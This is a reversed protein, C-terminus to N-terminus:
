PGYDCMGCRLKVKNTSPSRSRFIPFLEKLNNNVLEEAYQDKEPKCYRTNEVVMNHCLKLHKMFSTVSSSERGCEFCIYETMQALDLKIIADPKQHYLKQHQRLLRINNFQRNCTFCFKPNPDARKKPGSVRRGLEDLYPYEELPFKIEDKFAHGEVILNHVIKLHKRFSRKHKLRIGCEPCDFNELTDLNCEVVGSEIVHYFLIHEKVSYLLNFTKNCYPCVQPGMNPDEEESSDYTPQEEHPIPLSAVTQKYQERTKKTKVIKIEFVYECDSDSSYYTEEGALNNILDSIKLGPHKRAQHELLLKSIKFKKNCYDCCHVFDKPVIEGEEEIGCNAFDVEEIQEM